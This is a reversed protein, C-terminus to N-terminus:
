FHIACGVLAAAGNLASKQANEAATPRRSLYGCVRDCTELCLCKCLRVDDVDKMYGEGYEPEGDATRGKMGRRLVM